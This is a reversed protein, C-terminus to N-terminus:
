CFPIRLNSFGLSTIIALTSSSALAITSFKFPKLDPPPLEPALPIIGCSSDPPPKNSKSFRLCRTGFFHFSLTLLLVLPPTFFALPPTLFSPLLIAPLALPNVAVLFGGDFGLGGLFPNKPLIHLPALFSPPLATPAALATPEPTIFTPLLATPAALATPEPAIFIPLDAIEPTLFTALLSFGIFANVPKM